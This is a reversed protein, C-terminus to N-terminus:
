QRHPLQLLLVRRTHPTLRSSPLLPAVHQMHSRRKKRRRMNRTRKRKKRKRRTLAVSSPFSRCIMSRLQVVDSSHCECGRWQVRACACVILLCILVWRCEFSIFPSAHHLRWTLRGSDATRASNGAACMSLVCMRDTPHLPIHMIFSQSHYDNSHATAPMGHVYSLEFQEKGKGGEERRRCNILSDARLRLLPSSVLRPLSPAYTMARRDIRQTPTATPREGRRRRRREM